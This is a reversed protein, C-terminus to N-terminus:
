YEFAGIDPAAGQPVPTGAPDHAIGVPVGADIAPSGPKLRYDHAAADVFIEALDAVELGGPGPKAVRRSQATWINHDHRVSESLIAGGIINNRLLVDTSNRAIYAATNDESSSLM